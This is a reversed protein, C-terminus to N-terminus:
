LEEIEKASLKTYKIIKEVSEGDAKMAKTM